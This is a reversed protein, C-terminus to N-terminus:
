HLPNIFRAVTKDTKKRDNEWLQRSVFYTPRAKIYYGCHSLFCNAAIFDAIFCSHFKDANERYGDGM